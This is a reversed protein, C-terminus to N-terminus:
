VVRLVGDLAENWSDVISGIYTEVEGESAFEEILSGLYKGSTDPGAETQAEEARGLVADALGGIVGSESLANTKQAADSRVSDRTKTAVTEVGKIYPTLSSRLTKPLPSSSSSLFFSFARLLIVGELRSFSTNLIDWTPGTQINLSLSALSDTPLALGSSVTEELTQFLSELKTKDKKSNPVTLIYLLIDGIHDALNVYDQEPQTLSSFQQDKTIKKLSESLVTIDLGRKTSVAEPGLQLLLYLHEILEYARVYIEEPKPEQSILSWLKKVEPNEYNALIDYDRQDLLPQKTSLRYSELLRPPVSGKKSQALRIIRREDIATLGQVISRELADEIKGFERVNSYNGQELCTRISKDTKEGVSSYPKLVKQISLLPDADNKALESSSFQTIPFPHITPIRTLLFHSMSEHQLNKISLRPYIQFVKSIAGVSRCIKLLFLVAQYSNPREKLSQELIIMSQLIYIHSSATSVSALRILASAALIVSSEATYVELKSMEKGSKTFDIYISLAQAALEELEKEASESKSKSIQVHYRLALLNTQAGLADSIALEEKATNRLTSTYEEADTFFKSQEAAGLKLLIPAIDEFCSAKPASSRFYETCLSLPSALSPLGNKSM